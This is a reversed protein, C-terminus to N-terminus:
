SDGGPGSFSNVLELFKERNFEFGTTTEAFALPCIAAAKFVSEDILQYENGNLKLHSLGGDRSINALAQLRYSAALLEDSGVEKSLVGIMSIMSNEFGKPRDAAVTHARNLLDFSVAPVAKDSM